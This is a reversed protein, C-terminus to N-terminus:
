EKGKGKGKGRGATNALLVEALLLIFIGFIVARTMDRGALLASLKKEWGEDPLVVVANGAFYNRLAANTVPSLDGEGALPDLNVAFSAAQKGGVFVRYVGPVDTDAFLIEGGKGRVVVSRGDPTHVEANDIGNKRYVGGIAISREEKPVGIGAAYATLSRIFPVYLPRVPMNNWARDATSAFLVVEGRGFKREVAFPWGSSVTALVKADEKPQLVYSSDVTVAQWDFESFPLRSTLRQDDTSFRVGQRQKNLTGFAAPLYDAECRESFHDGPFILAGGGAAIFQEIPAHNERLNACIVTGPVSFNARAIDSEAVIEAQPLATKLYFSAADAGGFKPDGDVIWVKYTTPRQVAFYYSNDQKLRDPALDVSGVLDTEGATATFRTTFEGGPTVVDSGKKVGDVTLTVPWPQKDALNSRGHAEVTWRDATEDVTALADLWGINEGGAPSFVMVKTRRDTIGAASKFGHAALDSLVIVAKNSSPVTSLLQEAAALGAALDTSRYTAKASGIFTELYHRDNGLTPTAAEVRNSYVVCGIRSSGPLLALIKKARERDREFRPMGSEEYQMSCSADLLLVVALPAEKNVPATVGFQMVPRAFYLVLLALILTRVLLLLYQRLKLKREIREIAARLFSLESFPIERPRRRFFLHIILPLASIPLSWLLAPNLFSLNM